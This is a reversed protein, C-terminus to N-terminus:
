NLSSAQRYSESLATSVAQNLKETAEDFGENDPEVESLNDFAEALTEVQEQPLDRPTWNPPSDSEFLVGWFATM